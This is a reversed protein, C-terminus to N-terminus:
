SGPAQGRLTHRLWLYGVVASLTSGALVGLRVAADFDFNGHEFALSGIFLSMTFGIGTLMCVGYLALWSSGAPLRALGLKIVLAVAAFVGLQKGVFLGLVIGLSVSGTLTDIGVGAFSVGANAFAFLPLIMYAVWPHLRHELEALPSSEPEAVRVPITMAVVVGALTAHVGSKLVCVWMVVGVLLYAAKSRVGFRNLAVLVVACAGAALLSLESLDGSYFLAITVIAALDDLIALSALFVKLAPPVRSGLLLLVGLAFAIDTAAPIAWGNVASPDHRNLAVYILSPTIFGGAAGALPLLLQERSSLEGELVERKLELGILLFFVAMMGDNVWLLLPKDLAIFDGVFVAIRLDFLAAYAPALPSNAVLLALVAAGILVIGGAAELRLFRRLARLVWSEEM